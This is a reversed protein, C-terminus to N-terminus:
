EEDGEDGEGLGRGDRDGQGTWGLVVVLEDEALEVPVSSSPDRSGRDDNMPSDLGPHTERREEDVELKSCLHLLQRGRESKYEDNKELGRAQGRGGEWSEEAAEDREEM